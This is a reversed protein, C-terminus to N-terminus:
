FRPRSAKKMSQLNNLKKISETISLSPNNGTPIMNNTKRTMDQLKSSKGHCDICWVIWRVFTFNERLVYGGASSGSIKGEGKGKEIRKLFQSPTGTIPKNQRNLDRCTMYNIFYGSNKDADEPLEFGCSDCTVPMPLTRKENIETETKKKGDFAM